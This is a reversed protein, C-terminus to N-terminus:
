APFSPPPDDGLSGKERADQLASMTLFPDM